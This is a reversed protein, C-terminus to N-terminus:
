QRLRLIANRFRERDVRYYDHREGNIVTVPVEEGYKAILDKDGDILTITLDFPIERQIEKIVGEAVECLHCGSRSFIEVQITM